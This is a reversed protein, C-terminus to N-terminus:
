EPLFLSRSKLRFKRLDEKFDQHHMPRYGQPECQMRFHPFFEKYGGKLIYIEPYHLNPYENMTRDRERVFRCMRPGRESSFECHFVLLVRRDPSLPAIPTRLLYEEVQEEQHLNLAGKIHGGEFEYPYRCDVVVIREVLHDLQGSLASVMIEPTIYKLDQHKGEVTSLAFTKTFDGILEKDKTLSVLTWCSRLRLTTVSRFLPGLATDETRQQVEQEGFPDWPQTRLRQRYERNVLQGRLVPAGLSTDETRTYECPGGPQTETEATSQEVVVSEFLAGPATDEADTYERNVWVSEVCPSGPQTYYEAYEDQEVM